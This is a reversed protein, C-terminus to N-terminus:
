VDCRRWLRVSIDTIDTSVSFYPLFTNEVLKNEYADMTVENM